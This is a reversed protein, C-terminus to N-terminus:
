PKPAALKAREFYAADIMDFAKRGFGARVVPGQNAFEMLADGAVDYRPWVPAGGGNPDSAKAFRLWYGSMAQAMPTDAAGEEFQAGSVENHMALSIEASHRTGYIRGRAAVPVYSVHYLYTPAGGAASRRALYRAPATMFADGWLHQMAEAEPVTGGKRYIEMLKGAREGMAPIVAKEAGPIYKLLSDEWSNAGVMYPVHAVEGKLFAEDVPQPVIRGDIVIGGLVLPNKPGLVTAAPLARMAALDGDGIGLSRTWELGTQEAEPMYTDLRRGFGKQGGGSQSIAKAFLGRALPSAMLANVSFAGASEGFVTVNGPDGGFAAINAQVWRLGAMQDMLGYNGLMGDADEASLAPHSFWGFRALRYNVGVVIVGERALNAGEYVPWSASGMSFAGGYIWVMVPLKASPKAGAPRWLNLTLCDESVPRVYAASPPEDLGWQMCDPGYEQAKRVGQWRALPQPARWRLAGVPPAAFPVGRFSEVADDRRGEIEGSATRVVPGANGALVPSSTALLALTALAIRTPRRTKM